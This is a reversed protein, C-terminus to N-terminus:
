VLLSTPRCSNMERCVTANWRFFTNWFIFRVELTSSAAAHFTNEYAPSAAAPRHNGPRNPATVPAVVPDAYGLPCSPHDRRRPPRRPGRLDPLGPSRAAPHDTPSGLRRPLAGVPETTGPAEATPM